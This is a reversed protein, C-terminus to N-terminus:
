LTKQLVKNKFYEAERQLLRCDDFAYRERYDLYTHELGQLWKLYYEKSCELGKKLDKQIWEELDEKEQIQVRRPQEILWYKTKEFSKGKSTDYIYPVNRINREVFYHIAYDENKEKEKKYAPNLRLANIEASILKVDEGMRLFAESLLLAREYCHGNSCRNSLLLISGPIGMDDIERLQQILEEEYLTGKEQLHYACHRYFNWIFYELRKKM